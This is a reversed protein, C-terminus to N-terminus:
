SEKLAEQLKKKLFEEMTVNYKKVREYEAKLSNYNELIKEEFNHDLDYQKELQRMLEESPEHGEGHGIIEGYDEFDVAGGKQVAAHLAECQRYTMLIYVFFKSGDPRTGKCLNAVRVEDSDLITNLDTNNSM